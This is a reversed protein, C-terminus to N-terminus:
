IKTYSGTTYINGSPDLTIGKGYAGGGGGFSKVWVFNGNVDLKLIYVNTGSGSSALTYTGIGPDFDVTGYFGGITIVNGSADIVNSYSGDISSDGFGKAWQYTQSSIKNSLLLLVSFINLIHKKM